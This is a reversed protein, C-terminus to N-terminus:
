TVTPPRDRRLLHGAADAVADVTVGALCDPTASRCRAPPKRVRNCPRCWLRAHVIVSRAALPAYRTPDTPGFIAVVPIGVAAALHMPGTDGSILISLRELIAALEVLPARGALNIVRVHPPIAHEVATLKAREAASGLLVITAGHRRALLAATKAFRAGPWEKVARGAGPNLGILPEAAAKPLLRLAARRATDPIRLIAHGAAPPQPNGPAAPRSRSVPAFGDPPLTGQVLALANAAVHRTTDYRHADTLFAGGGRADYGVRRRAGSAALLANSRIDPEFNMALDFDKRRWDRIREVIERPGSSTGERALWPVDLTHVHHLDPVLRALERNWSGAALHIEAEPLRRRVERLAGLTMLLDGIRELRFLLVRRPAGDPVSRRWGGIDGLPKLLLDAGGVLWRERRDDIQLHDFV